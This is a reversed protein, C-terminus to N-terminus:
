PGFVISVPGQIGNSTRYTPTTCTNAPCYRTVSGPSFDNAVSLWGTVPGIALSVPHKIESKSTLGIIKYIGGGPTFCFVKNNGGSSVCLNGSLDFVLANPYSFDGAGWQKLPSYGPASYEWVTGTKVDNAVYLNDATDFALAKPNDIDTAITAALVKDPPFGTYETVTGLPNESTAGNAVFLAGSSNFALAQPKGIGQQSGLVQTCTGDSNYINVTNNGDNALYINGASGVAVAVPDKIPCKSTSKILPKPVTGTYRAIDNATRNSVYLVGSSDFALSDPSSLGTITQSSLLSLTHDYVTVENGTEDAVYLNSTTDPNPHGAAQKNLPTLSVFRGQATTSPLAASPSGANGSCAALIGVAVTATLTSILSRM